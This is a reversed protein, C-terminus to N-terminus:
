LDSSYFIVGLKVVTSFTLFLGLLQPIKGCSDNWVM